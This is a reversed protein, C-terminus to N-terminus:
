LKPLGEMDDDSDQGGYGGAAQDEAENGEGEGEEEEEEEEQPIACYEEDAPKNADEKVLPGWIVGAVVIGGGIWTMTGPLVGWIGWDLLLAFIIQSYMMNTARPSKDMVLAATLLFQLLFGFVGIGVLLLWERLGHPFRFGVDPFIPLVLLFFSLITTLLAYYNVSILAHARTGIVRIFTYAGAAAFDSILAFTIATFRQFPTVDNGFVSKDGRASQESDPTTTQPPKSFSFPDAVIIIGIFCILGAILQKKSFFENLFVSSFYSALVPTIFSIIIAEAMPLYQLSDIM